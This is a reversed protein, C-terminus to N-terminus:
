AGRPASLATTEGYARARDFNAFSFTRPPIGSGPFNVVVKGKEVHWTFKVIM